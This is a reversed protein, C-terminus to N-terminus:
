NKLNPHPASTAGTAAETTGFLTVILENGVAGANYIFRSESVGQKETLYKVVANVRDWSLQQASKSTYGYGSVRINCNPNANIKAAVAALTETAEKSLKAKNRDFVITSLEGIECLSGSNTKLNSVMEKVEKCCAPEPCTGVGDNNVPFCSQLTILEKDKYDPVGDGDTDKARGHADVAVGAPTNPELDFQDTVGDNDVDPLKVKPLKMHKPANIEQYLYNNPNLWWLPAVKRSRDGININIRASTQGLYDNSNGAKVADLYDYGSASFTFRQELGVSIVDSLKFSIGGGASFSNYIAYSKRNNISAGLGTTLLGEESDPLGQGYFIRYGGAQAGPTATKYMVKSGTLSYGALVYVNTKPNARYYSLSNLSAIVDVGFQRTKTKFPVRNQSLQFTNPEGSSNLDAISARLSFTHNLAKRVSVSGGFGAKSKVDASMTAVGLGFGLEWQSRPKAPYPFVNNIFENRQPQNKVAVKSSDRWDWGFDTQAFGVTSVLLALAGMLVNKKSAM